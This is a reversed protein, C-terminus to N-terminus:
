VSQVEVELLIPVFTNMLRANSRAVLRQVRPEPTRADLILLRTWHSSPAPRPSKSLM